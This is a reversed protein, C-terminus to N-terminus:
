WPVKWIRLTKITAKGGYAGFSDFLHLNEFRSAEQGELPGGVLLYTSLVDPSLGLCGSFYQFSFEV